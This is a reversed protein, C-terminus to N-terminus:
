VAVTTITTNGLNDNGSRYVYYVESYGKENTLNQEVAEEFGGIFGGVSFDVAGLRKPIAFWIYEDEGANVTFTKINSSVLEKTMSGQSFTAGVGYYCYNKFSVSATKSDSSSGNSVALTYTHNSTATVTKSTGTVATGDITQTTATGNLAWSLTVSASEGMVASTPSATFSTISVNGTPTPPTPQGGELATLRRNVEAMDVDYEETTVCGNPYQKGNRIEGVPMLPPVPPMPPFCKDWGLNRM